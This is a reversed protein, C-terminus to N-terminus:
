PRRSTSSARVRSPDDVDRGRPVRPVGRQGLPALVRHPLSARDGVHVQLRRAGRGARDRGRGHHPPARRRQVAAASRRQQVSRVGHLPSSLAGGSILGRGRSRRRPRAPHRARRGLSWAALAGSVIAAIGGVAFGIRPGWQSSVWGVIPRRDAHQRPVRDRLAGDGPRAHRPPEHAAADHERDRHVRVDDLGMVFCPSSKPRSRRRPVRRRPDRVGM